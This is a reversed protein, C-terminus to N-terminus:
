LTIQKYFLDNGDYVVKVLSKDESMFAISRIHRTISNIWFIPTIMSGDSKNIIRIFNKWIIVDRKNPVSMLCHLVSLYGIDELGERYCSKIDNKNLVVLDSILTVKLAIKVRNTSTRQQMYFGLRTSIEM